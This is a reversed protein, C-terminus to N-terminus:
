FPLPKDRTPYVVTDQKLSEDEYNVEIQGGLSWLTPYKSRFKEPRSVDIVANVDIQERPDMYGRESLLSFESSGMSDKGQLDKGQRSLLLPFPQGEQHGAFDLKIESSFTKIAIWMPGPITSGYSYDGVRLVVSNLVLRKDRRNVVSFKVLYKAHGYSETLQETRLVIVPKKRLWSDVTRFIYSAGGTLLGILTCIAVLIGIDQALKGM